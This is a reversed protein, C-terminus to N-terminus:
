KFNLKVPLKILGADMTFAFYDKESSGVVKFGEFVGEYSGDKQKMLMIKQDKFGNITAMDGDFSVTIDVKPEETKNMITITDVSKVTPGGCSIMTALITLSLLLKKM